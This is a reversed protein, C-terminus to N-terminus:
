SKKQIEYSLNIIKSAWSVRDFQQVKNLGGLAIAAREDSNKLYYEIKANLDDADNFIVLDKGDVFDAPRGEWEDTLLFGGAAMIKYIRDSAGQDTCFNLNIRTKSVEMSHAPGFANNILKVPYNVQSLKEKRNGYINGIFSVDYEKETKQPQEITEDYGECVHFCNKNNKEIEPAINKKDFCFYDVVKAARYIEPHKQLTSLPDMFWLCTTTLESIEEFVSLPLLNCKSFIVLDFSRERILSCLHKDRNASGIAQAKQRYNYGVVDHGLAKFAMLQSTNTSKGVADFVGIYLIKM